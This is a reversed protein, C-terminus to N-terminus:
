MCSLMTHFPLTDTSHKWFAVHGSQRYGSGAATRGSHPSASRSCSAEMSESYKNNSLCSDNLTPGPPLGGGEGWMDMNWKSSCPGLDRRNVSGQDSVSRKDPSLFASSHQPPSRTRPGKRPSDELGFGLNDQLFYRRPMTSGPSGHKKKKEIKFDKIKPSSRTNEGEFLSAKFYKTSPVNFLHWVVTNGEEQGVESGWWFRMSVIAQLCGGAAWEHWVTNQLADRECVYIEQPDDFFQRDLIVWCIECSHCFHCHMHLHSGM